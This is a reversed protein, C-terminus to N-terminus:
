VIQHHLKLLIRIVGENVDSGAGSQSPTTAGLLTKDIPCISSNSM